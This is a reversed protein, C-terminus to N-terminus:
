NIGVTLRYDEERVKNLGRPYPSLTVGRLLLNNSVFLQMNNEETLGSAHFILTKEHSFAGNKYVAM